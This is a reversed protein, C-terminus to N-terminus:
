RLLVGYADTVRQRVELRFRDSVLVDLFLLVVLLYAIFPVQFYKMNRSHIDGASVSLALQVNPENSSLHELFARTGLSILKDNFGPKM